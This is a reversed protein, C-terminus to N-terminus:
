GFYANPQLIPHNLSHHHHWHYHIFLWTGYSLSYLCITPSSSLVVNNIKHNNINITPHLSHWHIFFLIIFSQARKIYQVNGRSWKKQEDAFCSFQHQHQSLNKIIRNFQNACFKKFWNWAALSRIVAAPEATASLAATAAWSKDCFADRRESSMLSLAGTMMTGCFEFDVLATTISRPFSLTVLLKWISLRFSPLPSGATRSQM